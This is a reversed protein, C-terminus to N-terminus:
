VAVGRLARLWGVVPVQLITYTYDILLLLGKPRQRMYIATGFGVYGEWRYICHPCSSQQTSAHEYRAECAVINFSM